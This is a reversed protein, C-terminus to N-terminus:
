KFKLNLLVAQRQQKDMALYDWILARAYKSINAGSLNSREQLYTIKAPGIDLPIADKSPCRLKKKGFFPTNRLANPNEYAQNVLLAGTIESIPHQFDRLLEGSDNVLSYYQEPLITIFRAYNM